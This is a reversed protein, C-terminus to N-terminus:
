IQIVVIHNDITVVITRVKPISSGFQKYTTIKSVNHIKELKLKQWLNKKLEHAIKLLQGLNLIYSTKLM